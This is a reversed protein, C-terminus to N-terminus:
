KSSPSLINNYVEIIRKTVPKWDYIKEVKKRANTGMRRSLLSNNFLDLIADSLLEIDGKKIVIGDNGNEIIEALGGVDSVIVPKACAMGELAVIGFSERELSPVVVVECSQYYKIIKDPPLYGAFKVDPIKKRKVFSLLHNKYRGDGIIFLKADKIERKLQFFAEILIQVGKRPVLRGVFCISHLINNTNKPTFLTADVGNPIVIRKNKDKILTDIIKDASRSVSIIKSAKNLVNKHIVLTNLLSKKSSLYPITHNTFVFPINAKIAGSAASISIPTFIHHIHVLDIKEQRLIDSIDGSKVPFLLSLSHFPPKVYYVSFPYDNKEKVRKKVIVIVYHGFNMLHSCLGTVHSQVGGPESFNWEMIQAIRM